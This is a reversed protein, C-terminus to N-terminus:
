TVRRARRLERVEKNEERPTKLNQFRIREEYFRERLAGFNSSVRVSAILCPPVALAAISPMLSVISPMILWQLKRTTYQNGLASIASSYRCVSLFKMSKRLLAQSQRFRLNTERYPAYPRVNSRWGHWILVPTPAQPLFANSLPRKAEKPRPCSKLAAVHAAKKDEFSPMAAGFVNM